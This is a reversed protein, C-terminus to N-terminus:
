HMFHRIGTFVMSIGHRNCMDISQQDNKSGGPQIIATVGSKAAAMVCDDFPFFADSALVAGVAREKANELAVKAAMIRSTQGAGIGVAILDKALVVANSRAHKAVAMAFLLDDMEKGDPVRETVVNLNAKEITILNASQVLLGGSVKKFRLEKYPASTGRHENYGSSHPENHGDCTKGIDLRLLRINKKRSLVEFADENFEPAIVIELFIKSMENATKLDVARNVAVIGGYISEPDSDHAAKYASYADKGVAAGCPTAHKVAVAAPGSFERLLELACDADNINNYSLEKGHLKVAATVTGPYPIPERYLAAEQHPNEGYRMDFVKEFTLTMLKEFGPGNGTALCDKEVRDRLYASIMADYNATHSFVKQSFRLRDIDSLDGAEMLVKLLAGYDEPDIVVIVDKYNKAAARLMAPGGIDINEIADSLEAGEKLITQKFPYLNIVVIDITKVGLEKIRAMHEPNNRVALIGGHVKPHLTKVRGDLCEPFGTLESVELVDIGAESLVKATGGTSIIEVGLESLGEALGVIGTKDFVSIIARKIKKALLSLRGCFERLVFAHVRVFLDCKEAVVSFPLRNEFAHVLM